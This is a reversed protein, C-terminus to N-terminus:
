NFHKGLNTLYEKVNKDLFDVIQQDFIGPNHEQILRVSSIYVNDMREPGDGPLQQLRMMGNMLVTSLNKEPHNKVIANIINEKLFDDNAWNYHKGYQEWIVFVLANLKQVMVETFLWSAASENSCIRNCENALNKDTVIEKVAERIGKAM